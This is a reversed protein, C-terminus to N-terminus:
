FRGFSYLKNGPDFDYESLGVNTRLNVYTYEEMLDPARGPRPWDYAEFRIPLNLEQDIYVKVLYFLLGPQRRPFTTEILTCPHAGVKANHHIAVRALEPRLDRGWAAALGDVLHSLGAETIPHRCDEMARDSRPDLSLTGALLKGLGVDHVWARGGNRGAVYIAERGANPRVFKVYVSTPRNRFKMQMVHQSTLRGDVRERKFFTCTYDRVQELQARCAAIARKAEDYPDKARPPLPTTPRTRSPTATALRPVEPHAPAAPEKPRAPPEAREKPPSAIPQREPPAVPEKAVEGPPAPPDALALLKPAPGPYDPPPDATSYYRTGRPPGADEALAAVGAAALGLAVVGLSLRRNAVSSPRLPRGRGPALRAM